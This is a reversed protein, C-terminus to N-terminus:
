FIIGVPEYSTAFFIASIHLDGFGIDDTATLEDCVLRIAQGFQFILPNDALAIPMVRHASFSTTGAADRDGLRFWPANKDIAGVAGKQLQCDANDFGSTGQGIVGLSHDQLFPRICYEQGDM